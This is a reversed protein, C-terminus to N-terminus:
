ASRSWPSRSVARRTSASTVSRALRSRWSRQPTPRLKTSSMHVLENTRASTLCLYIALFPSNGLRVLGGLIRRREHRDHAIRPRRVSRAGTHRSATNRAADRANNPQARSGALPGPERGSCTRPTLRISGLGPCGVRSVRMRHTTSVCGLIGPKPNSLILDASACVARRRHQRSGHAVATCSFPPPEGEDGAPRGFGCARRRGVRIGAALAIEHLGRVVEPQPAPRYRRSRQQSDLRDLAGCGTHERTYNV